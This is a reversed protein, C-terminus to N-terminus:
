VSAELRIRELPFPRDCEHMTENVGTANAGNLATIVDARPVHAM